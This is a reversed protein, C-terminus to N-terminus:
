RMLLSPGGVLFDIYLKLITIDKTEQAGMNALNWSNIFCILLSIFNGMIDCPKLM